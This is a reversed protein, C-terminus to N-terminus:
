KSRHMVVLVDVVIKNNCTQGHTVFKDCVEDEIIAASHQDDKHTFGGNHFFEQVVKVNSNFSGQQFGLRARNKNEIVEM